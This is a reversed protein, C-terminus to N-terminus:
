GNDNGPNILELDLVVVSLVKGNSLLISSSKIEEEMVNKYAVYENVIKSKICITLTRNQLNMNTAIVETDGIPIDESLVSSLITNAVLEIPVTILACDSSVKSEYSM